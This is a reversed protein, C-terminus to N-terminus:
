LLQMVEADPLTVAQAACPLVAKMMNSTYILIQASHVVAFLAAFSRALM